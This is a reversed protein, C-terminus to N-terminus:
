TSIFKEKKIMGFCERYSKVKNKNKQAFYKPESIGYHAAQCELFFELGFATPNKIEAVLGGMLLSVLRDNLKLSTKVPASTASIVQKNRDIRKRLIREFIEQTIQGRDLHHIDDIILVDVANVYFDIFQDLHRRRIANVADEIFEEGTLFQIKFDDKNSKLQNVLAYLLYTKGNGTAGELTLPNNINRGLKSCVEYAALHALESERSVFFNEFTCETRVDCKIYQSESFSKATKVAEKSQNIEKDTSSFLISSFPLIGMAKILHRRKM